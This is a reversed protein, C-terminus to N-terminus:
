RVHIYVPVCSHKFQIKWEELRTVRWCLLFSQSPFSAVYLCPFSHFFISFLFVIEVFSKTTTETTPQQNNTWTFTSNDSGHFVNYIFFFFTIINANLNNIFSSEFTCNLSVSGEKNRSVLCINQRQQQKLMDQNLFFLSYTFLSHKM